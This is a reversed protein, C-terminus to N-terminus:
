VPEALLDEYQRHRQIYEKIFPCSPEVRRGRGRIDDLAAAALRGAYGHGEDAPNVETHLLVRRGPEDEYTVFGAVRDGVRLEYRRHTPDEVVSPTPEDSM